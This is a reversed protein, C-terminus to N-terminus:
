MRRLFGAVGGIVVAVALLVFLAEYGFGAIQGVIPSLLYVMIIALFVVVVLLLTGVASGM